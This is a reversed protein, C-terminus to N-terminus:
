AARRKRMYERMYANYKDRSRRNPTKGVASVEVAGGAEAQAENVQTGSARVGDVEPRPDGGGKNIADNNIAVRNIAPKNIARWVECRM